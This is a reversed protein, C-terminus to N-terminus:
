ETNGSNKLPKEGNKILYENLDLIDGVRDNFAIILLADRKNRAYLPSMGYLILSRNTEEVNLKGAYCLRLLTDRQNTHKEGSILKYGYKESIDADIFVKQQSIKNQSLLDKFYDSFTKNVFSYNNETFIQEVNASHANLLIGELEKTTKKM